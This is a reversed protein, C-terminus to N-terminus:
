LETRYAYRLVVPGRLGSPQLPDDAKWHKWTSFLIRDKAPRSEGKILWEPWSALKEGDWKCDDVEQEDGIMRNILLNTVDVELANKGRQLAETVEVRFPPRWLTALAKGNLRIEAIVGVEGLDLWLEQGSKLFGAPLDFTTKMSATGSFHRIRPDEHDTWSILHEFRAEKPAGRGKQFSVDWPGNIAIPEPIDRVILEETKGSERKLTYAGESWTRLAPGKKGNVFETIWSAETLHRPPVSVLEKFQFSAKERLAGWQYELELVHKWFPSWGGGALTSTRGHLTGDKLKALLKERVDERGIRTGTTVYEAQHLILENSEKREPEEFAIIPDRAPEASGRFVVFISDDSNMSVPVLTHGDKVTWAPVPHVSGSEPNWFEPQRGAVRFGFTGHLAKKTPNSLFYIEEDETRRHIWKVPSQGPAMGLDPQIGLQNLAESPDIGSFIVGKGFRRSTAQTGDCYGWVEEAIRLVEDENDPYNTLSPSFVPKPALIAGGDRVWDRIKRVVDLNLAPPVKMKGGLDLVLLRYLRGNNLAFHGDRFAVQPFMDTGINDFDYGSDRLAERTKPTNPVTEGAYVLVDCVTEGSQLLFQSRSIYEIWPKAQKWWSNNRDFHLGYRGMTMGPSLQSWPQHTFRHFYFRNIGKSWALDGAYKLSAPHAKWRDVGTFAEAGAVPRNGINAASSVIKLFAYGYGLDAFFEGMPLDAQTAVAMSEFPGRYPEIAIALGHRHCLEKFYGYYNDTVLDGITRRFDYYFRETSNLDFVARGALAVLYPTMDYGRRKKFEERMDHTWSHAGAEYSDILITTLASGALPGLKDLMPKIGHKWHVDLASRSMKDVELGQGSKPSHGNTKGTPGYGLRLITWEGEPADWVLSGDHKMRSTLDIIDTPQLIAPSSRKRASHKPAADRKVFRPVLGARPYGQMTSTKYRYVRPADTKPYALIAIDRYYQAHMQPNLANQSDPLKPPLLKVAVRKGGGVHVENFVIAKMGNEPKVWPGGTTAWGACNQIGLELGLRKAEATAHHLLDLWEESLYSIKGEPIDCAVNFIHAGGIGAHAMAELDATIGARSINGNMWHWWTHPQASAPPNIFGDELTNKKHTDPESIDNKGTAQASQSTLICSITLLLAARNM